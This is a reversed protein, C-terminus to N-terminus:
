EKLQSYIQRLKSDGKVNNDVLEIKTVTYNFLAVICLILITVVTAYILTAFMTGMANKRADTKDTAPDDNPKDLPFAYNITTKAAENWALAVVLTIAGKLLDRKEIVPM